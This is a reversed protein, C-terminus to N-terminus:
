VAPRGAPRDSTSQRRSAELTAIIDAGRYYIRRGYRVHALDSHTQRRRRLTDPSVNLLKAVEADPYYADPDIKLM